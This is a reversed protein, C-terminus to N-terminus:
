ATASPWVMKPLSSLFDETSIPAAIVKSKVDALTQYAIVNCTDMWTAFAQGEAQFAGVFGARLACTIRNDYRREQAVSDLHSTLAVDYEDSLKEIEVAATTEAYVPQIELLFGCPTTEKITGFEVFQSCESNWQEKNDAQLANLIELRDLQEATPTFTSVVLNALRPFEKLMADFSARENAYTTQPVANDTLSIKLTYFKYSNNTYYIM